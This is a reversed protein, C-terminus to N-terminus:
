MGSAIALAREFTSDVGSSYDLFDQHVVNDTEPELIGRPPQVGTMADYNWLRRSRGVVIGSNPLQFRTIHGYHRMPEILAEGVLIANGTDSGSAGCSKLIDAANMLASSFTAGGILITVGGEMASVEKGALARAFGHGPRSDGGSNFRLDIILKRGRPPGGAQGASRDALLGLVEDMTAKADMNCSDYRFYLIDASSPAFDYWWRENLRGRTFPHDEPPLNGLVSEWNSPPGASLSLNRLGSIEDWVELELKGAAALGSGTMLWADSFADMIETRVAHDRLDELGPELVGSELSLYQALLETADGISQGGIKTVITGLYDSHAPDTAAVRAEWGSHLSLGAGTAQSSAPFYRLILPFVYQPSANIRSHGDEVRALATHIGAVAIASLASPQPADALDDKLTNLSAIFDKRIEAEASLKPHLLMEKELTSVDELWQALNLSEIDAPITGWQIPTACATVLIALSCLFLCTATFSRGLKM